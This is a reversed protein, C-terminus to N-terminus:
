YIIDGIEKDIVYKLELHLRDDEKVKYKEYVYKTLVGMIYEFIDCPDITFADVCFVYVRHGDEDIHVAESIVQFTADTLKGDIKIM